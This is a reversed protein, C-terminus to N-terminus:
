AAVSIPLDQPASPMEEGKGGLGCGILHVALQDVERSRVEKVGRLQGHEVSSSVEVRGVGIRRRRRRVQVLRFRLDQGVVLRSSAFAGPYRDFRPAPQTISPAANEGGHRDARDVLRQHPDERELPVRQPMEPEGAFRHDDILRM